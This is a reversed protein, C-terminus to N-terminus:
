ARCRPGPRKPASGLQDGDPTVHLRATWARVHEVVDVRHRHERPHEIERARPDVHEPEAVVDLITDAIHCAPEATGRVLLQAIGCCPDVVHVPEEGDLVQISTVGVRIQEPNGLLILLDILRPCDLEFQQLRKPMPGGLRVPVTRLVNGVKQGTLLIARLDEELIPEIEAAFIANPPISVSPDPYAVLVASRDQVLEAEWQTPFRESLQVELVM